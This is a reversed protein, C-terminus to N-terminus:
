IVRGEDKRERGGPGINGQREGQKREREDKDKM